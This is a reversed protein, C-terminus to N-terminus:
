SRAAGLKSLTELLEDFHRRETFPNMVVVRLAMGAGVRAVTLYFPGKEIAARRLRTQHESIAAASAGRLAPPLHRFCVINAEPDHLAEFDDRSRILNHFERAKAFTTDVLAEFLEDGYLSWTGWLSASIAHRTCELTRHAADRCREEWDSEGFLYPADQQFPLFSASADRYLLFTCLSPVFLMKHADWALSDALEAGRLRDRHARSFLVSAGHAGDVHLWLEKERALAALEELSDFAGVATSCASAVLCFPDLGRARAEDFAQRAAEGCVRFHRDVPVKVVADAGLGMVGAARAVSYHATEGVLIAPRKDRPTGGEWSGPYARNRAALLATLNAISGGHTAIGEGKAWGVRSLLRRVLAREASTFSPSMEYLAGGQNTISAVADFLGAAPVPPPVQHGMYRPSHLRRAGGLALDLLEQFERGGGLAANMTAEREAPSQSQAPLAGSERCQELWAALATVLQNGKERFASPDYAAELIPNM